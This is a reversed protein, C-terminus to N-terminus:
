ILNFGSVKKGVIIKVQCLGGVTFEIDTKSIAKGMFVDADVGKDTNNNARITIPKKNKDKIATGLAGLASTDIKNDTDNNSKDVFPKADTDKIVIGLAGLADLTSM